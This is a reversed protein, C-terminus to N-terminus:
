SQKVKDSDLTDAGAKLSVSYGSLNNKVNLKADGNENTQISFTFTKSGKKTAIVQLFSNTLETNVSIILNSKAIIKIALQSEKESFSMSKLLDKVIKSDPILYNGSTPKVVLNPEKATDTTATNTSSNNTNPTSSKLTEDITVFGTKNGPLGCKESVLFIFNNYQKYIYEVWDSYRQKEDINQGNNYYTFETAFFITPANCISTGREVQYRLKLNDYLAIATNYNQEPTSKSAQNKTPTNSNPDPPLQVLKCSSQIRNIIINKNYELTYIYSKVQDVSWNLSFHPSVVNTKDISYGCYFTYYLKDIIDKASNYAAQALKYNEESSNSPPSPLFTPNKSLNNIEFSAWQSLENKYKDFDEITPNNLVSPSPPLPVLFKFTNQSYKAEVTDLVLKTFGNIAEKVWTSFYAKPDAAQKDADIILKGEAVCKADCFPTATPTPQPTATPTPQPTATPTPQPTATPTPQPTATPTPQTGILPCENGIKTIIREAVAGTFALFAALQYRDFGEKSENSPAVVNEKAGFSPGCNSKAYLDTVRRSQATFNEYASNWNLANQLITENDAAFANYPLSSSLVLIMFLSSFLKLINQSFM